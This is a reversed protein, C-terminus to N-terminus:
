QECSASGSQTCAIRRPRPGPLWFASSHRFWCILSCDSPLVASGWEPEQFAGTQPTIFPGPNPALPHSHTRMDGVEQQQLGSSCHPPLSAAARPLCSVGASQFYAMQGRNLPFTCLPGCPRPQLTPSPPAANISAYTHTLHLGRERSKM